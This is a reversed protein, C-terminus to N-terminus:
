AQDHLKVLIAENKAKMDKVTALIRDPRTIERGSEKASYYDECVKTLRSRCEEVIKETVQNLHLESEPKGGRDKATKGNGGPADAAETQPAEEKLLTDVPELSMKSLLCGLYMTRPLILSRLDDISCLLGQCTCTASDGSTIAEELAQLRGTIRSGAETSRAVEMRLASSAHNLAADIAELVEFTSRCTKLAEDAAGNLSNISEYYSETRAMIGRLFEGLLLCTDRWTEAQFRLFAETDRILGGVTSQRELEVTLCEDELRRTQEDVPWPNYGRVAAQLDAFMAMAREKQRVEQEELREIHRTLAADWDDLFNAESIWQMVAGHSVCQPPLLRLASRVHGRIQAHVDEQEVRIEAFIGLRDEPEVFEAGRITETFTKMTHQSRLLRWSELGREWEGRKQEELDVEKSQLRLSLDAYSRQNQLVDKNLALAESEM